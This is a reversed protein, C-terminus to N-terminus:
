AAVETTMRASSPSPARPVQRTRGHWEQIVVMVVMWLVAAMLTIPLAVIGLIMTGLLALMYATILAWAVYGIASGSPAPTALAMQLGIICAGLFMATLALGMVIGFWAQGTQAKATVPGFVAGSVTGSVLALLGLGTLAFIAAVVFGVAGGVFAM